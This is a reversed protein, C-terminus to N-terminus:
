SRQPPPALFPISHDDLLQRLLSPSHEAADLVKPIVPPHQVLYSWGDATILVLDEGHHDQGAIDEDSREPAAGLLDRRLGPSWMLQKRGKSVREWEHWRDLADADGKEVDTLLDWVPRTAHVDRAQKSQTHTLELGLADADRGSEDMKALYDALASDRVDRIVRVDQGVALPAPLGQRVVARSWRAASWGGFDAVQDDSVDGSIFLLAHVHVHWGNDGTTTEVVRVLGHLGLATKRTQWAKGGLMSRWAGALGDWLQALQHGRHHRLTRTVFLVAGGRAMWAAVAAGVELRRVAAIKANCVPCAWPSGCTTLGSFGAGNPGRRVAVLDGRRVRGCKRVRSLSSERWLLSRRRYRRSRSAQRREARRPSFSPSVTGAYNELSPDLTTIVAPPQPAIPAQTAPEVM